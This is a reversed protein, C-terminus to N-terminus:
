LLPLRRNSSVHEVKTNAYINLVLGLGLVIYQSFYDSVDVQELIAEASRLAEFPPENCAWYGAASIAAPPNLPVHPQIIRGFWVAHRPIGRTLRGNARLAADLGRPEHDLNAAGPVFPRKRRREPRRRSNALVAARRMVNARDM